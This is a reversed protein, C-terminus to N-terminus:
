STGLRREVSTFKRLFSPPVSFAPAERREGERPGKRKAGTVRAERERKESASRARRQERGLAQPPPPLLQVKLANSSIQIDLLYVSGRLCFCNTHTFLVENM